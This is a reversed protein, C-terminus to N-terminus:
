MKVLNAAWALPLWWHSELLEHSNETFDNINLKPVEDTRVLGSFLCVM